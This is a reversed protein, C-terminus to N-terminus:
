ECTARPMCKRVSAQRSVVKHPTCRLLKVTTRSAHLLFFCNCPCLQLPM